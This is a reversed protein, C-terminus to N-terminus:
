PSFICCCCVCSHRCHCSCSSNCYCSNACRFWNLTAYSYHPLQCKSRKTFDRTTTTPPHFNSKSINVACQVASIVINMLVNDGERAGKCSKRRHRRDGRAEITAILCPSLFIAVFSMKNKFGWGAILSGVWRLMLLNIYVGFFSSSSSAVNVPFVPLLM